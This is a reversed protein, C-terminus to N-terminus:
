ANIKLKEVLLENITTNRKAAEIKFHLHLSAPLHVVFAKKEQEKQQKEIIEKQGKPGTKKGSGIWGLPDSGMRKKETM